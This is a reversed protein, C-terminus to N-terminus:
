NKVLEEGVRWVDGAGMTIVVTDKDVSKKLLEVAREITHVNASLETYKKNINKVIENSSIEGNAERASTYIDLLLIADASSLSEAFERVFMKTRSFTHPQFVVIQEKKPYAQRVAELTKEIERPHHAYDDIIIGGKYKGIIQMRRQTGSFDKLGKEIDQLSIGITDCFAIVSTANLINHQGFLKLSFTGLLEGKKYIEFTQAMRPKTKTERITYDSIESYGFTVRHSSFDKSIEMSRDDDANVIIWGHPPIKKLFDYFVKNYMEQNEFFDPHDFGINVVLASWTAYYQFKNQYEDAEFIFHSGKGALACGGWDIVKSGVLAGPDKKATKFVHALLATTTTKGHTGCVAISLKQKALIGLFEPYSFVALGRKKAYLIEENTEPHYATSYIVAEVDKPINEPSFNESFVIGNKRLITDTFFEEETDSGTVKINHAVLIQALSTMGVGKIGVFHVRKYSLQTRM